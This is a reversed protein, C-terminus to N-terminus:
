DVYGRSREFYDGDLDRRVVEGRTGVILSGAEYTGALTAGMGVVSRDGVAAGPTMSSNSGIICYDGISVPRVRQRNERWGIGHTIVTSRVGAVTSFKGVTLGGSLDIYHRSTIASHVGLTVCGGSEIQGVLSPAASLWNWQGIVSARGIEVRRLNRFVNFPGVRSEEDLHMGDVDWVICPGFKARPHVRHGLRRFLWNKARCAPLLGAFLVRFRGVAKGM